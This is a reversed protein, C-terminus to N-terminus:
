FHLLIRARNGNCCCQNRCVRLILSPCLFMPHINSYLGAEGTIVQCVDDNATCHVDPFLPSLGPVTINKALLNFEPIGYWIEAESTFKPCSTLGHRRVFGHEVRELPNVMDILFVKPKIPKQSATTHDHRSELNILPTAAVLSAIASSALLQCALNIFYM